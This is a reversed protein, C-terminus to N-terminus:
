NEKSDKSEFGEENKFRYGLIDKKIKIWLKHRPILSTIVRDSAKKNDIKNDLREKKIEEIEKKFRTDVRITKDKM